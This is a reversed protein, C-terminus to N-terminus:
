RDILSCFCRAGYEDLTAGIEQSELLWIMLDLAIKEEERSHKQKLQNLFFNMTKMPQKFHGRM